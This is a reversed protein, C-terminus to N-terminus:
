KFFTFGRSRKPRQSLGDQAATKSSVGLYADNEEYKSAIKFRENIGKETKADVILGGFGVVFMGVASAGAIVNHWFNSKSEAQTKQYEIDRNVCTKTDEMLQQHVTAIDKLKTYYQPDSPDLSAYAEIIAANSAVLRENLMELENAM